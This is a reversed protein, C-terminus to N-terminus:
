DMDINTVIGNTVMNYDTKNLKPVGRSRQFSDLLASLKTNDELHNIILLNAGSSSIRGTEFKYNSDDYKGCIVNSYYYKCDENQFLLDVYKIFAEFSFVEKDSLRIQGIRDNLTFWVDEDLNLAYWEFNLLGTDKIEPNNECALDHYAYDGNQKAYDYMYGMRLFVSAVFSLFSKQEKGIESLIDWIDGFSAVSIFDGNSMQLEPRFDYPRHQDGSLTSERGPYQIYVKENNQTRYLCLRREIDGFELGQRSLSNFAHVNFLKLYRSEKLVTNKSYEFSLAQTLENNNLTRAMKGGKTIVNANHSFPLVDFCKNKVAM